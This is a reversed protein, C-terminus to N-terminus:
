KLLTMKRVEIFDNTQLRYIYTGSVLSSANFTINYIGQPKIEGNLLTTVERGLIDFIRLNVSSEKMLGFTITTTPNFPNPFNQDLFFDSPINEDKVSVVEVFDLVAIPIRGTQNGDTYLVELEPDDDVNSVDVVDFRQGVMESLLSDIITYEYSTSDHIDGGQYEIRIIAGNPTAGRTGFVIDMNGDLEIDGHGVGNIRGSGGILSKLDAVTTSRLIEFDDPELLYFRANGDDITQWGGVVIEETGDNNIDLVEASKWSGGPTINELTEPPQYEGDTYSVLTVNGNDHFLYMTNDLIVMDYITGPDFDIDLGSTELTWTESGDGNDPIDSVSVVGYRYITQRGGFCLEIDGDSDIDALEWKLPRLEKREEETITWTANPEYNGFVDIGMADSGDGAYEFVIIRPPNTNDDSFNNAPGWIMEQKGDQDWDGTTLASWSNQLPITHMVGSWVSDWTTGNFEFKYIRPILEAGGLDLMNNIAYIEKKGDGDFDVGSIFEGLGTNETIPVPIEHTREFIQGQALISSAATFLFVFLIIYIKNM